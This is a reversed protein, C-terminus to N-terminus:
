GAKGKDEKQMSTQHSECYERTGLEEGHEGDLMVELLDRVCRIRDPSVYM